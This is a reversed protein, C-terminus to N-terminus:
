KFNFQKPVHTKKKNRKKESPKTQLIKQMEKNKKRAFKKVGYNPSSYIEYYKTKPVGVM